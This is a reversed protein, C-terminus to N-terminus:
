QAEVYKWTIQCRQLPLTMHIEALVKETDTRTMPHKPDGIVYRCQKGHLHVAGDEVRITLSGGRDPIPALSMPIDSPAEWAILDARGDVPPEAM